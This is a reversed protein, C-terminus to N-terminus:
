AHLESKAKRAVLIKSERWPIDKSVNANLNLAVDSSSFNDIKKLVLFNSVRAVWVFHDMLNFRLM